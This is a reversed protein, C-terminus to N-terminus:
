PRDRSRSSNQAGSTQSAHLLLCEHLLSLTPADEQSATQKGPCRPRTAGAAQRRSVAPVLTIIRLGSHYCLQGLSPRREVRSPGFVTRVCASVGCLRSHKRASRAQYAVHELDLSAIVASAACAQLSLVFAESEIGYLLTVWDNAQSLARLGRSANTCANLFVCFSSIDHTMCAGTLLIPWNFQARTGWSAGWDAVARSNQALKGFHAVFTYVHM